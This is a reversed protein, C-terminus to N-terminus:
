GGQRGFRRRGAAPAAIPVCRAPRIQGGANATSEERLPCGAVRRSEVAAIIARGISPMSVKRAERRVNLWFALVRRYFIQYAPQDATRM